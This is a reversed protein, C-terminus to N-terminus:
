QIGPGTLAPERRRGFILVSRWPWSASTGSYVAFLPFSCAIYDLLWYKLQSFIYTYQHIICKGHTGLQSYHFVVDM